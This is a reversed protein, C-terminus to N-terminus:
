PQKATQNKAKRFLLAFQTCLTLFILGDFHGLGDDFQIMNWLVVAEHMCAHM